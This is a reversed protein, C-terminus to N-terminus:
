KEKYIGYTDNRSDKFIEAHPPHFTFVAFIIEILILFIVSIVTLSPRQKTQFLKCTILQCLLSGLVYSFIDILVINRGLILYYSYFVVLITFTIILFGLAKVLFYNKIHHKITIYEPVSFILLAWYGLKLHEWISENVPAILAIVPSNLWEYLFHLASGLVVLAIFGAICWQKIKRRIDPM